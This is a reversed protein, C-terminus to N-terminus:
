RDRARRQQGILRAHQLPHALEREVVLVVRAPADLQVGIAARGLVARAALEEEVEVGGVTARRRDGIRARRRGVPARHLGVTVVDQETVQAVVPEDATGSAVGQVAAEAVVQEVRVVVEAGVAAEVVTGVRM